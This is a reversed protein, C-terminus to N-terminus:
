LEGKGQRADGLKGRLIDLFMDKITVLMGYGGIASLGTIALIVFNDTLQWSALLFGIFGSFAGSVSLLVFDIGDFTTPMNKRERSYNHSAAVIGGIVSVIVGIFVSHTAITQWFM